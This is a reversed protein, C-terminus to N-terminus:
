AAHGQSHSLPLTIDVVLGGGERNRAVIRGGHAEIARRAIALGLGFGGVEQDGEGRFFPEFVQPLAEEAIGPGRDAVSVRLQETAEPSSGDLPEAVVTASIEVETGPRTYKVANRVVNEIARHVLEISVEAVAEGEGRFVVARDRARAEFDADAALSAILDMLDAEEARGHSREGLSAELRSLTLLQGVLADVRSAENEIRDLAGHATEPRQRALGIAAQLRALPSRLEHSVEHLLSRQAGILTQLRETMRDFDRGLDAVEDRRRGMLPGVRTDLEGRSVAAFASKLHRIPRATYWALLTGFVLSAFLGTALPVLPSPPPGSGIVAREVWPATASPVFFTLARGDEDAARRLQESAANTAFLTRARTLMDPTVPRGLLDEGSDDVAFVPLAEDPDSHELFDRLAPVGGHAFVTAAATVMLHARPGSQFLSDEGAEFSQYLWWASGVGLMAVLLTAWYGLLFKWFLRGM